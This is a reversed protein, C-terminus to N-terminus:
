HPSCTTMLHLLSDIELALSSKKLLSVNSDLGPQQSMVLRLMLAQSEVSWVAQGQSGVREMKVAGVM